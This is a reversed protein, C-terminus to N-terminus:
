CGDGVKRWLGCGGNETQAWVAGVAEAEGARHAISSGERNHIARLAVSFAVPYYLLWQYELSAFFSCVIYAALTAQLGVSLYYGDRSMEDQAGVTKLELARLSQFPAFILTLYAILGAMGLEAWVELYANHARLEGLSYHHFNGMGVGILSHRVAVLAARQLILQRQQASGTEDTVPDLITSLRNGSGMIITVAFIVLLAAATWALFYRPRLRKLLVIGLAVLGLFGGRSLTMLVGLSLVLACVIYSLRSVGKRTLALAVALPILLALASALDNPNEFMGGNTGAIRGKTYKGSLFDMIAGTAIGVGCILMVKLLSCLRKHSTVLNIILVFILVIKFLTESFVDITDQASTAFPMFLMGLLVISCLMRLELPWITISKGANLVSVLYILVTLIAVQKVLLFEGFIGPLLDNPRAYLLFTFLWLGAFAPSNALGFAENSGKAPQASTDWFPTSNREFVTNLINTDRGITTM